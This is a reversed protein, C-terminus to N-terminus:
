ESPSSGIRLGAVILWVGGGSIALCAMWMAILRGDAGGGPAMNAIVLAALISCLGPLLLVVGAIIMIVSLGRERRPNDPPKSANQKPHDTM